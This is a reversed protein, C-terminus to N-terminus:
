PSYSLSLTLMLLQSKQDLRNSIELNESDWYLEGERVRQQQEIFGAISWGRGIVTGVVLALTQDIMPQINYITPEDLRVARIQNGLRVTGKVWVPGSWWLASGLYSVKSSGHADHVSAGLCLDLNSVLNKTASFDYQFTNGDDSYHTAIAAVKWSLFHDWHLTAGFIQGSENWGADNEFGAMTLDIQKSSGRKSLGVWVENQMIQTPTSGIGLGMEMPSFVEFSSHRLHFLGTTKKPLSFLGGLVYGTGTKKYLDDQFSHSTISFDVRPLQAFIEIPATMQILLVLLITNRLSLDGM